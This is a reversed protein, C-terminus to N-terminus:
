VKFWPGNYTPPLTSAIRPKLGLCASKPIWAICPRNGYYSGGGIYLGIIHTNGALGHCVFFVHKSQPINRPINRPKNLFAPSKIFPVNNPYTDPYTDSTDFMSRKLFEGGGVLPVVWMSYDKNCPGEM